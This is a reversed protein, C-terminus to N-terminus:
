VRMGASPTPGAIPRAPVGAVTVGDPVNSTVVSGAGVICRAGISIGPIVVAGAGVLTEEGIRVNGALIAGPAVHAHAGIVCHHDISSATNIIANEGIQAAVNITANAMVVSGRAVTAHASVVASPHIATVPQLGLELVRAFVRRRATNDGIGMAVHRVGRSAVEEITGVVPLDLVRTGHLSPNTDVFGVARMGDRAVAVIDCVVMGHGSAGIVYLDDAAM